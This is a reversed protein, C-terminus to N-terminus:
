VRCAPRAPRALHPRRQSSCTATWCNSAELWRCHRCSPLNQRWPAGAAEESSRCANPGPPLSLTSAPSSTRMPTLRRGAGPASRLPARHEDGREAEASPGAGQGLLPEEDTCESTAYRCRPAFRCGVLERSLDPPLGPISYLRQSKDQDLRPISEFLAESYPHRMTDFLEGTDAGEVFKGAYMVMVRDARAAIVGMDHTILVVAM